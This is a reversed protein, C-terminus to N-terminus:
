MGIICLVIAVFNATHSLIFWINAYRMDNPYESKKCEGYRLFTLGLIAFCIAKM